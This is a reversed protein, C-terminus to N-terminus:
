QKYVRHSLKSMQSMLQRMYVFTYGDNRPMENNDSHIINSNLFLCILTAGCEISYCIIRFKTILIDDHVSGCFKINKPEAKKTVNVM